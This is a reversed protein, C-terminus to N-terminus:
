RRVAEVAAKFGPLAGAITKPAVCFSLRMHGARGFGRGPVALIRQELLKDVFAVDDPIPTRPFLYLAGAAPTFEYGFDQLARSLADRNRRYFGVDCRADACRAVVRQTLAPANVFGMTRNLM